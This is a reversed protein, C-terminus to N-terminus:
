NNSDDLMSPRYREAFDYIDEYAKAFCLVDFDSGPKGAFQIGIPMHEKGGFGAPCTAIANGGMTWYTTVEMWNHYTQMKRGAIEKPWHISKDFPFVQASPVALLDFGEEEYLKMMALYFSTRNVFADYVDQVSITKSGDYEWQSEPKTLNRTEKEMLSHKSCASYHRIPLWVKKWFKEPDYFPQIREVKVGYQELGFVAKETTELIGDEMALYGNWDGLWGIKMGKIDKKLKEHVNYPTLEAIRPDKQKSLPATYHYGAQTNLLLAIDAVTRGMPGVTSQTGSFADENPNAVCGLSPRLSYINQWGAPNRLSGMYDSGDAVAQMRLALSCAAGGSSGGSTKSPDYANGTTGFVLNYSQSGYGFEPTNTKGIIISGAEKMRSVMLSDKDPIFNQFALSGKTTLIGKTASLDKIAQPFGHMWGNDKGEALQADKAKAQEMLADRDQLSVIANVKPNVKEIHDLYAQMVEVCSAEKEHIVKSLEYGPLEILNKNHKM